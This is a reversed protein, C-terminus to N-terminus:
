DVFVPSVGPYELEIAVQNDVGAWWNAELLHVIDWFGISCVSQRLHPCGVVTISERGCTM